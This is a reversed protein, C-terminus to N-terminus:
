PLRPAAAAHVVYPRKGPGSRQEFRAILGQIEAKLEPLDDPRLAFAFWLDLVEPRESTERLRRLRPQGDPGLDFLMGRGPQFDHRLLSERLEAALGHTFPMPLLEDPVIFSAAAARYLKMPRGARRRAGVVELLGLACLKQVQRHLRKLEIRSMASAEAVTLSGPIFLALIGLRREDTLAAAAARSRVTFARSGVKEEMPLQHRM